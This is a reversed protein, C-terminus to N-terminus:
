PAPILTGDDAACYDTHTYPPITPYQTDAWWSCPAYTWDPAEKTTITTQGDITVATYSQGPQINLNCTNTTATTCAPVIVTHTDDHRGLGVNVTWILFLLTAVATVTALTSKSLESM